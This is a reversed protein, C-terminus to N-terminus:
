LDIGKDKLKFILSSHRKKIKSFTDLVDKSFEKPWNIKSRWNYDVNEKKWRLHKIQWSNCHDLFTKYSEPIEEGEILHTKSMILEKIRENRPLFDNEAWFLWTKLEEEKLPQGEIFVYDRGLIDLLDLFTRKGEIILLSLPGYLEALQKATYQLMAERKKVKSERISQLIHNIFWGFVPVAIAIFGIIIEVKM